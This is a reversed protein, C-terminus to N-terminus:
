PSLVFGNTLFSALIVGNSVDKRGPRDMRGDTWGTSMRAIWREMRKTSSAIVPPCMRFCNTRDSRTIRGATTTTQRRYTKSEALWCSSSCSAPRGRERRGDRIAIPAGNTYTRQHTQRSRRIRLAPRLKVGEERWLQVTSRESHWVVRQGGSPTVISRACNWCGADCLLRAV